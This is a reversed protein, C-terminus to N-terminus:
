ACPIGVIGKFYFAERNRKIYENIAEDLDEMDYLEKNLDEFDPELEEMQDWRKTRDKDPRGGMRGASKKIIEYLEGLGAAKAGNMADEWVIGTSNSYFQDHGGNYVEALYWQLAFVYRQERSFPKLDAEYQEEGDYISVQWWLPAIIDQIDGSNIMEDDVIIETDQVTM